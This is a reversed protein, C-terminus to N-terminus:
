GNKSPQYHNMLRYITKPRGVTGIISGVEIVEEEILKLIIEDLERPKIRIANSLQSRTMAGGRKRFLEETKLVLKAFPSDAVNRKTLRIMQRVVWDTFESAWRAAREDIIPHEHDTSCAYILALKSAIEYVRTWLM